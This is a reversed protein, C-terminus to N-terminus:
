GDSRREPGKYPGGAKRRRDPGFYQQAEVFTRSANVAANIRDFLMKSSLPKLLFENVGADRSRLVRDKDAVGTLMVIPVFPNPSKERDRLAQVAALGTDPELDWDVLVVHIPNEEIIELAPEVARAESVRRIGMRSLMDRILQRMEQSHDVVLINLDGPEVPASQKSAESM